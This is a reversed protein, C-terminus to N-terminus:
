WPFSPARAAHPALRENIARELVLAKYEDKAAVVGKARVQRRLEKAPIEAVIFDDFRGWLMMRKPGEGRLSWTEQTVRLRGRADQEPIDVVLVVGTRARAYKLAAFPCDTFDTGPQGWAGKQRDGVKDPDYPRTMGRYLRM